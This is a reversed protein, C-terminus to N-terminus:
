IEYNETAAKIAKSQNTLTESTIKDSTQALASGILNTLRESKSAVAAARYPM